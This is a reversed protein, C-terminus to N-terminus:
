GGPLSSRRAFPLCSGYTHHIYTHLSIQVKAKDLGEPFAQSPLNANGDEGTTQVNGGMRSRVVVFIVVLIIVFVVMMPNLGGGGGYYGPGYYGGGGFGGGHGGSSHGGSSHGGGGGGARALLETSISFCIILTSLFYRVATARNIKKFLYNSTM